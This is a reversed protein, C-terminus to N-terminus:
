FDPMFDRTVEHVPGTSSFRATSKKFIQMDEKMTAISKELSNLKSMITNFDHKIQTNYEKMVSKLEIVDDPTISISIPKKDHIKGKILPHPDTMAAKTLNSDGSAKSSIPSEDDSNATNVTRRSTTPSSASISKNMINQVSSPQGSVYPSKSEPYKSNSFISGSYGVKPTAPKQPQSTNQKDMTLNIEKQPQRKLFSIFCDKIFM